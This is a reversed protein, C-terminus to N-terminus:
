RLEAGYGPGGLPMGWATEDVDGRIKHGDQDLTAPRNRILEVEARVRESHFPNATPLQEAEMRGTAGGMELTGPSAEGRHIMGPPPASAVTQSLATQYAIDPVDDNGEPEGTGGARRRRPVTDM